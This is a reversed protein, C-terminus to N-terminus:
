GLVGLYQNFDAVVAFGMLPAGPVVFLGVFVYRNLNGFGDFIFYGISVNL